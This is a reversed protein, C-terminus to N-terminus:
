KRSRKGNPVHLIATVRKAYDSVTGESKIATIDTALLDAARNLHRTVKQVHRALAHRLHIVQSQLLTNAERDKDFASLPPKPIPVVRRKKRAM